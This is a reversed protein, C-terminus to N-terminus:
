LLPLRWCCDPDFPRPKATSLADGPDGTLAVPRLVTHCLQTSHVDFFTACGGEAIVARLFHSPQSNTLRVNGKMKTQREEGKKFEVKWAQPNLRQDDRAAKGNRKSNDFGLYQWLYTTNFVALCPKFPKLSMKPINLCSILGYEYWFYRYLYITPDNTCTMHGNLKM